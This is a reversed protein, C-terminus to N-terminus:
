RNILWWGVLAMVVLMVLALIPDRAVLDGMGGGFGGGGSIM